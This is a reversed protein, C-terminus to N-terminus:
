AHEPGQRLESGEDRKTEAKRLLTGFTQAVVPCCVVVHHHKKLIMRLLYRAVFRYDKNLVGPTADATMRPVIM